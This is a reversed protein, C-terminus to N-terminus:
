FTKQWKKDVKFSKPQVNHKMYAEILWRPTNETIVIKSICEKLKPPKYTDYGKM